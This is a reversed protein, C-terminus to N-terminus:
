GRVWQGGGVNRARAGLELITLAANARDPPLKAREVLDDLPQPLSSLVNWMAAQDPDEPPPLEISAPAIIGLVRLVDEASTALAAQGKALLANCGASEDSFVSGPVAFVDLGDELAFDATILAGSKVPAEIVLTGLSLGAIIRNRGPFSYPTPEMGMPYETLILGGGAVIEKALPAHSPPHLVDLGGGLVAVTRGGCRLTERAVEGDIGLALGSVTVLGAEIFRPVFTQVVRRGYQTMGRTGVIALSPRDLIGLDGRAYLFPPPDPINRLRSPYAEDDVTLFQIGEDELRHLLLSADFEEARLLVGRVTEPRCGMGALMEEGLCKKAESFSGFVDLM